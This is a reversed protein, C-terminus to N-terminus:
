LSLEVQEQKKLQRLEKTEYGSRIGWYFFLVSLIIVVGFDLPFRIYNAGYSGLYSVAVLAVSYVVIWLGRKVDQNTFLKTKGRTAFFVAVGVLIALFAYGTHLAV